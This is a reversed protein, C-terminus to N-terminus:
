ENIWVRSIHTVTFVYYRCRHDYHIPCWLHSPCREKLVTSPIITMITLLPHPITMVPFRYRCRHRFKNQKLVNPGFSGTDKLHLWCYFDSSRIVAHLHRQSLKRVGGLTVTVKVYLVTCLTIGYISCGPLFVIPLNGSLVYDTCVNGADREGHTGCGRLTVGLLYWYLIRYLITFRPIM